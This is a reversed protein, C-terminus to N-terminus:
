MKMKAVKALLINFMLCMSYLIHPCQLFLCISNGSWMKFFLSLGSSDTVETLGGGGRLVGGGGRESTPNQTYQLSYGM